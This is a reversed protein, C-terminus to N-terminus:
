FWCCVAVDIFITENADYRTACAINLDVNITFRCESRPYLSVICKYVCVCACVSLLM